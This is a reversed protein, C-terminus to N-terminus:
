YVKADGAVVLMQQGKEIIYEEYLRQLLQTITDKSDAVADM